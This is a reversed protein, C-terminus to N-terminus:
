KKLETLRCYEAMLLADVIGDHPVRSRENKKFEAFPWLRMAANLSTAKTDKTPRKKDEKLVLDEELWVKKQWTKPQVLSYPIMYNRALIELYGLKVGKILGFNFTSKASSGFIAHVDEIVIREVTHGNAWPVTMLDFLAALDPVDNEMPIAEAMHIVGHPEIFAIGGKAGVDIGGYLTLKNRKESMRM